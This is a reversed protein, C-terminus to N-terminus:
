SGWQLHVPPLKKQTLLGKHPTISVQPFDSNQEPSLLLTANQTSLWCHGSYSLQGLVILM